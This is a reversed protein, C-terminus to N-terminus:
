MQDERFQKHKKAAIMEKIGAPSIDYDRRILQM